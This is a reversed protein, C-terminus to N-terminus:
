RSDTIQQKAHRLFDQQRASRVLDDDSSASPM